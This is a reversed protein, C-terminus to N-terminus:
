ARSPSARGDGPEASSLHRDLSEGLYPDHAPVLPAQRLARAVCVGLLGAYGAPLLLEIPGFTPALGVDPVILLYLDLWRGGIVLLSTAMLTHPHHKSAWPLLVIFPVVWNVIPNLFFLWGWAGETRRVYYTVEDPMNSYWILLYQSVWIYAWFTSFAFLLTGLDHLHADGVITALPGRRLLLVILTLVALGSMVVGAFLYVVFITSAWRPQLSMVWDVGAVLFSPAFIVVFLASCAVLRQHHVPSPDRDQRLSLRRIAQALLLWVGLVVASRVFVFVPSLYRAKEVSLPADAIADVAAGGGAAAHAGAEAGAGVSAQAWPYLTPWGVATVLMLLAAIPLAAMMAEAVRRLVVWWGAHSLYQMSLFLAGGLAVFLLSLNCVLLMSWTREPERWLGAAAAITGLGILWLAAVPWSPPATMARPVSM